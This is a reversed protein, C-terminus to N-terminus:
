WCPVWLGTPSDGRALPNGPESFRWFVKREVGHRTYVALLRKDPM